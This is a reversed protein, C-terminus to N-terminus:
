WSTTGALALAQKTPLDERLRILGDLSHPVTVGRPALIKVPDIWSWEYNRLAGAIWRAKHALDDLTGDNQVIFEPEWDRMGNESPDPDVEIGPREIKVTIGGLQRIRLGESNAFRVSPVIIKTQGEAALENVRREWLDVWFMPNISRYFQGWSQLLRRVWYGEEDARDYKHSECYAFWDEYRAWRQITLHEWIHEKLVTSFDFLLFGQEEVFTRAFSDKGAGYGFSYVGVIRSTGCTTM